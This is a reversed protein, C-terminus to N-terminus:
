DRRRPSPESETGRAQGQRSRDDATCEQGSAPHRSRGGSRRRRRARRYRPANRPWAPHDRRRRANGARRRGCHAATHRPLRRADSSLGFRAGYIRGRGARPGLRRNGPQGARDGRR